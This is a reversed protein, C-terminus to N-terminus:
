CLPRHAQRAPEKIMDAPIKKLIRRKHHLSPRFLFYLISFNRKRAALNWRSSSFAFDNVAFNHPTTPLLLPQLPIPSSRSSATKLFYFQVPYRFLNLLFNM